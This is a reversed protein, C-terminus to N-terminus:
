MPGQHPAKTPNLRPGLCWWAKAVFDFLLNKFLLHHKATHLFGCMTQLPRGPVQSGSARPQAGHQCQGAPHERHGHSSQLAQCRAWHVDGDDSAARAAEGSSEREGLRAAELTYGAHAGSCTPSHCECQTHMHVRVHVHPCPCPCPCPCPIIPMSIAHCPMATCQMSVAHASVCTCECMVAAHASCAGAEDLGRPPIRSRRTRVWPLSCEFRWTRSVGVVAAWYADWAAVAAQTWAATTDGPVAPRCEFGNVQVGRM